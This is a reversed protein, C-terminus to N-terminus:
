IKMGDWFIAQDLREAAEAVPQPGTIPEFWRDLAQAVCSDIPVEESEKEGFRAVFAQDFIKRLCQKLADHHDRRFKRIMQPAPWDGPFLERFLPEQHIHREVEWSSYVGRAYSYVELTMLVESLFSQGQFSFLQQKGPWYVSQVAEKVLQVLSTKGMWERPHPLVTRSPRTKAVPPKM